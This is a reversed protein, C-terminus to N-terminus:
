DEQRDLVDFCANRSDFSPGRDIDECFPTFCLVLEGGAARSFFRLFTVIEDAGAGVVSSGVHALGEVMSASSSVRTEPFVPVRRPLREAIVVVVVVVNIAFCSDAAEAPFFFFPFVFAFGSSTVGASNALRRCAAAAPGELVPDALWYRLGYTM